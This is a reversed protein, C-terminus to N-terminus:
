FPVESKLLRDDADGDSKLYDYGSPFECWEINEDLYKDQVCDLMQFGFSAGESFESEDELPWEFFQSKFLIEIECFIEVDAYECLAPDTVEDTKRGLTFICDQRDFVAVPEKTETLRVLTLQLNIM